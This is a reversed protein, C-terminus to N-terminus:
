LEDLPKHLFTWKAVRIADRDGIAKEPTDSLKVVPVGNCESLKIVMNLPKSGAYDNTLHTGIGFSIRVLGDLEKQIKLATDVDLGDSFVITKTNPDIGLKKYHSIVKHAFDLADGSDHRVGDFLRALYGNFDEFFVNTGFTDTLAIGLRGHFIKSWIDLAHRNAFRLGELASIGMLWEHAMTGIPKVGYKHALHVNSTGVFKPFKKLTKVVLDQMDYSRRRRTGFDALNCDKLRDGKEILANTQAIEDHEWDTECHTFYLQSIVSMLPVEWLITRDWTGNIELQLDGDVLKANIERPNYRYNRLYEIYEDTLFPCTDQFWQLEKDTAAISSMHDLEESLRAVFNENFKGEPRRNKFVYKVPVHQCHKLVASQMSFKYNDNDLMSRIIPMNLEGAKTVHEALLNYPVFISKDPKHNFCVRFIRNKSFVGSSIM